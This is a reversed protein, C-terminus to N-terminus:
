GSGTSSNADRLEQHPAASTATEAERRPFRFRHHYKVSTSCAGGITHTSTKETAAAIYVAATSSKRASNNRPAGHLASSAKGAVHTAYSYTRLRVVGCPVAPM